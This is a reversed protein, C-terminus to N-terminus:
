SEQGDEEAWIVNQPHCYLRGGDELEWVILQRIELQPAPATLPAIRNLVEDFDEKVLFDQSGTGDTKQINTCIRTAM